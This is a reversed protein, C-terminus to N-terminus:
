FDIQFRMEFINIKGKDKLEALVYNFMFRTAPNLYWNLGLTINALEGGRVDTDDLDIDSYRLAVEFAGPGGESGFNKKPKIRGFAANSAKYNRHEGTIFWSAYGYFSSFNYSTKQLASTKSTLANANIYEGQVSFPGFIFTLEGGVQNVAKTKDIEALVITEILHSEPRSKLKYSSNDQYQHTYSFGIHLVRYRGDTKYVPLGTIRTTLDYKNGKYKGFNDAPLFYGLAWTMRKNLENNFLMIGTNREPTMPNTLGREMLTIYKSSTLLELGIPEKFHGVRFNGVVPIKTITIYADKLWATGGAFDFQLKYLINKYIKGSSYFRIRRFEVGSGGSVLTDIVGNNEPSVTIGDLMIRGGIKIKYGKDKNEIKLGNDWKIDNWDSQAFGLLTISILYILLINKKM